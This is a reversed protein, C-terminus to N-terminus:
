KLIVKTEMELDKTIVFNLRWDAPQICVYFLQACYRRRSCLRALITFLSFHQVNISGFPSQPTFVGGPLVEFRYPINKTVTKAVAFTLAECDDPSNCIVCHEIEIMVPKTFQQTTTIRYVASVLSCQQPLNFQGSLGAQVIILCENVGSPLADDPVHVKFGSGEWEFSQEQSNRVTIQTESIIDM